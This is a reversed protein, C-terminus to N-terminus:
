RVISVPFRWLMEWGEVLTAAVSLAALLMAVTIITNLARSDSGFLKPIIGGQM